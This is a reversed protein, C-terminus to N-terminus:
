ILVAKIRRVGASVAEEKQIKFKKNKTKNEDEALEGTGHVHPGGCFEVSAADQGRVKGSDDKAITYISVIEGYKEGFLHIANREEAEIKKVEERRVKLDQEIWENVIKETKEIEEQTMKREFTFDFRLREPTINSGAQNVNEGLVNKLAQHLLHTATHYKVNMPNNPDALGGKFKNESGLRSLDSHAIKLKEFEEKDIKLGQEKCLDEVIDVPFGYTEHLKFALKADFIKDSKEAIKNFEKLGNELTKRFKNEEENIVEYVKQENIKLENYIEGFYEIYIKAIKSCFNEKIGLARGSRIAKRLLRRIFYGQDKNTPYVGDAIFFTAGRIHDAIIRFSITKRDVGLIETDDPIPNYKEGGIKEVEKIAAQFVDLNFVDNDNNAAAAFRELGSGHDVNPAPLKKFVEESERVYEMFVNNGIEMFRGCDCNPHCKDNKFYSKGHFDHKLEPDFDYFMESDPGCPDGIPTKEISGGRSWWNKKAPYYFIREDEKMGDIEPTEGVKANISVNAFLKQWKEASFTDKPINNKDDGRFCSFYLNRPNIGIEKIMFEWMWDIQEDKFFDGLSWNGLMEFFTTHRNDGVEEIDQSRFCKQSDAIRKGQAHSQGLLYPVMPQMGSGTFLTTPDNEPILRSSPIVVHGGKKKMFKLFKERVENITIKKNTM